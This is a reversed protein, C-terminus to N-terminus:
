YPNVKTTFHDALMLSIILGGLIFVVIGWKNGYHVKGLRYLLYGAALNVFAWCVNLTPSSLGQGPPDSFPTPFQNGSIGHVLHPIANFFFAGALLCFLQHYWKINM